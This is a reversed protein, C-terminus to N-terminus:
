RLLTMRRTIKEGASKVQVFYVGTAASHGGNTEGNWSIQHSGAARTEALVRRVLGGRIDFIDVEVRGEAPLAFDITTYANFPNPRVASITLRAPIDAPILPANEIVPRWVEGASGLLEIATPRIAFPGNKALVEGEVRVLDLEPLGSAETTFWFLSVADDEHRVVITTAPDVPTISGKGELQARM